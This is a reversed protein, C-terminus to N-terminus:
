RGGNVRRRALVLSGVLGARAGLVSARLIVDGALTCMARRRMEAEAGPLLLDGMGATIGGGLVIVAPNFLNVLNGLGIGLYYAAMRVIALSPADGQRALEAVLRATINDPEGEAAQLLAEAQGDRARRRAEREMAGGSALSELCGHNGCGCGPGGEPVITMHGFEAAGGAAGHYIDGNADRGLHDYHAGIIVVKDRQTP